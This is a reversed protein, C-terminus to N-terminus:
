PSNRKVDVTGWPSRISVSVSNTDAGLKEVLAADGTTTCGSLALALSAVLAFLLWVTFARRARRSCRRRHRSSKSQKM